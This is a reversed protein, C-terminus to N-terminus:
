KIKIQYLSENEFIKQRDVFKLGYDNLIEAEWFALDEEAWYTYYYVPVQDIVRPLLRLLDENQLSPMVRRQPFFIKDSRESIIISDEPTIAFVKEAKVYYEDIRQKVAIISEDTKFMVLNISFFAFYLLLLVAVIPKLYKLKAFKIIETILFGIFPLSFIYIFLFYRLYSTGLSVVKPDLRDIIRWSGYYIILFASVFIFILLYSGLIQKSFKSDEEKQFLRVLYILGGFCTPIFFWWFFFPYYTYFNLIARQPHFGFPLLYGKLLNVIPNSSQQVSIPATVGEDVEENIVSQFTAAPVEEYGTAFPSSYLVQNITLLMIACLALVAFSSYIYRIKIQKYFFAFVLFYAPLMWLMESVRSIIAVGLLAAAIVVYITKQDKLTKILFYISIIFLDIVFVNHYMSRSTYVWFAPFIFLLLSSFLAINKNFIEKLLLYFFIVTIASILPTLFIIIGTGFIKGLLGYFLTMGLFSVPVLYSNIVTVSRPHVNSNAVLNLPEFYRLTGQDALLKTFFYNGTADPSNFIIRGGKAGVFQHYPLYSYIAFFVVALLALIILNKDLNISKM